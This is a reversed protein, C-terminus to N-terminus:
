ELELKLNPAMQTDRVKLEVFPNVIGNKKCNSRKTFQEGFRYKKKIGDQLFYQIRQNILSIPRGKIVGVGIMIDDKKGCEGCSVYEISLSICDQPNFITRETDEGREEPSMRSAIQPYQHYFQKRRTMERLFLEPVLKYVIDEKSNGETPTNIKQQINKTTQQPKTTQKQLERNTTAIPTGPASQPKETTNKGIEEQNELEEATYIKGDVHLRNGRIYCDNEKNGKALNLHRRLISNEHRQKITLDNAISIRTGRLNRANKLIAAKKLFSTFEIKIPPNNSKGLPYFNNLDSEAINVDVLQ